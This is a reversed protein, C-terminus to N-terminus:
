PRYALAVFLPEQECHVEVPPPPVDMPGLPPASLGLQLTDSGRAQQLPGVRTVKAPKVAAVIAFPAIVPRGPICAM